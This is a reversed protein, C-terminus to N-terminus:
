PTNLRIINCNNAVPTTSMPSLNLAPTTSIPPLQWHCRLVLLIPPLNLPKTAFAERKKNIKGKKMCEYDCEYQVHLWILKCLCRKKKKMSEKSLSHKKAWLTSRQESLAEKSLSHKKAGLTSRWESLAEESLSAFNAWHSAFNAALTTSVRPLNAVSTTSVPTLNAVTDIVSAAFKGGTEKVCTAFKGGPNIGTTCRSKSRIKSGLTIQPLRNM